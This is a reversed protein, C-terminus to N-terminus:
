RKVTFFRLSKLQFTQLLKLPKELREWQFTDKVM